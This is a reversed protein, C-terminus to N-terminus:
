LSYNSVDSCSERQGGYFTRGVDYINDSISDVKEERYAETVATIPTDRSVKSGTSTKEPTVAAKIFRNVRRDPSQFEPRITGLELTPMATKQTPIRQM